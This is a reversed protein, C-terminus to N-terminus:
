RDAAGTLAEILTEIRRADKPPAQAIAPDLLMDSMAAYPRKELDAFLRAARQLTALRSAGEAPAAATKEQLDAVACALLWATRDRQGVPVDFPAREAEAFGAARAGGSHHLSPLPLAGPSGLLDNPSLNLTKCIQQILKIDPEVEAREYRTYRNEDIDLAVALSRATKFGRAVRFERLRRAFQQRAIPSQITM